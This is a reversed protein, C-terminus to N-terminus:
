INVKTTSEQLMDLNQLPNRYGSLYMNKFFTPDRLELEKWERSDTDTSARDEYTNNDPFAKYDKIEGIDM